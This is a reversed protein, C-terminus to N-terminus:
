LTLKLIVAFHDSLDKHVPSWRQQFERAYRQQSLIKVGNARVFIYDIIGKGRKPKMAGPQAGAHKKKHAKERIDNHAHAAQVAVEDDLDGDKAHLCSVLQPYLATDDKHTNFDGAVLQLMGEQQHRKLLEGAQQYQSIKIEHSGGAQMHTGLLQYKGRPDEVEVLIAGKNGACDIGKCESYRISELEKLPYKSFILVGGARKYTIVKRNDQGAIYPYQAKLRKKLARVAKGDFAEEFVVVDPNEKIIKEPILRARIVPHHHLYVAGRPLLKVNYTMITITHNEANAFPSVPPIFGPSSSGTAFCFLMLFIIASDKM